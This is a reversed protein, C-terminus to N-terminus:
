WGVVRFSVCTRVFRYCTTHELGAPHTSSESRLDGPTEKDFLDTQHTGGAGGFTSCHCTVVTKLYTGSFNLIKTFTFHVFDFDVVLREQNDLVPPLDICHTGFASVISCWEDFSRKARFILASNTTGPMTCLFFNARFADKM